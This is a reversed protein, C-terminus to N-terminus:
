GPTCGRIDVAHSEGLVTLRIDNRNLAIAGGNVQVM